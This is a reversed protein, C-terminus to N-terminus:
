INPLDKGQVLPIVRCSSQFMSANETLREPAPKQGLVTSGYKKSGKGM